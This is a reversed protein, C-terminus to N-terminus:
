LQILKTVQKIHLFLPLQLVTTKFKDSSPKKYSSITLMGHTKNLGRYAENCAISQSMSRGSDNFLILVVQSCRIFTDAHIKCRHLRSKLWHFFSSFDIKKRTFTWEIIIRYNWFSKFTGKVPAKHGPFM